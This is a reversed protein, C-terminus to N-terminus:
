KQEILKNTQREFDIYNNIRLLSQLQFPSLHYFVSFYKWLEKLRNLLVNEKTYHNIYNETLDQYFLAFLHKQEHEQLEFGKINAALFPNQLAGRGIMIANQQPFHSIFKQYDEISFIDGNYIIKNKSLTLCKEFAKWDTPGEYLQIGLRAHIVIFDLPFCNTQEIIRLSEEKDYMGLRMKLSFRINTKTCVNDIIQAIEDPFPMLGCARKKRVIPAYPCGLNWNVQKFGLQQLFLVTDVIKESSNGIIQPIIPPKEDNPLIDRFLAKTLIEAKAVPIFPSIVNDFYPFHKLYVNRFLRFSIGHFPAFCIEM